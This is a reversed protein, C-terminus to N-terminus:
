KQLFLACCFHEQFCLSPAVGHLSMVGSIPSTRKQSSRAQRRKAATAQQAIQDDAPQAVQNSALLHLVLILLALGLGVCLAILKGLESQESLQAFGAHQRLLFKLLLLLFDELLGSSSREVCALCISTDGETVSRQERPDDRALDSRYHDPRRSLQGRQVSCSLSTTLSPPRPPTCFFVHHTLFSPSRRFMSLHMAVSHGYNEFSRPLARYVPLPVPSPQHDAGFGCGQLATHISLHM